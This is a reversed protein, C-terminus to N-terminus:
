KTVVYIEGFVIKSTYKNIPIDCYCSEGVDMDDLSIFSSDQIIGDSSYIKYYIWCKTTVKGTNNKVIFEITSSNKANISVITIGNSEFSLTTIQMGSYTSTNSDYTRTEDKVITEGFKITKTYSNIYVTYYCSEGPQMSELYGYNTGQIISEVTYLKNPIQSSFSLAKNTDNRVIFEIASSTKANIGVITVGNSTYPLKNMNIGNYTAMEGSYFSEGSEFDIEGLKIMGTSSNIPVTFYCSEGVDMSDLYLFFDKGETLGTKTCTPAVASDVIETHGLADVYNDIYSDGCECTYTSFGQKTCTPRTVSEVYAHAHKEKCASLGSIACLCLMSALITFLFKKKM